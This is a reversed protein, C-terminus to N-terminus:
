FGDMIEVIRGARSSKKEEADADSCWLLESQLIAAAWTLCRVASRLAASDGPLADVDAAASEIVGALRVANACSKQM